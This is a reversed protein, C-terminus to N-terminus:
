TTYAWRVKTEDINEIFTQTIRSIAPVLAWDFQGANIIPALDLEEAKADIFLLTMRKEIEEIGDQSAEIKIHSEQM